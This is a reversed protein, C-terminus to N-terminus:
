PRTGAAKGARTTGGASMWVSILSRGQGVAEGLSAFVEDDPPRFAAPPPLASRLAVAMARLEGALARSAAPDPPPAGGDLRAALGTVADATRATHAVVAALAETRPRVPPEALMQDLVAHARGATANMARRRRAREATNGAEEASSLLLLYDAAADYAGAAATRLELDRRPPRLLYGFVLVVACGIATEQMRVPALGPLGTHTLRETLLLIATTLFCTQWAYNRIVGLSLAAGLVALVAADPWGRPLAAIVAAALLVGAATGLARLLARVFVSGLDPKLVFAVTLPIWYARELAPLRSFCAAIGICLGSRAAYAWSPSSGLTRRIRAADGRLSWADGPMGLHSTHPTTPRGPGTAAFAERVARDVAREAPGGAAPRHAPPRYPHNADVARAIERVLPAYASRGPAAAAELLPPCGNLAQIIRHVEGGPRPARPRHRVVEEYARHFLARARAVAAMTAERGEAELADAVAAYVGAVLRREPGSGHLPRGVLALIVVIMGGALLLLATVRAPEPSGIGSWIIVSVLTNMALVSTVPGIRSVAGAAVALLTLVVVLTWGHGALLSGAYCGAANGLPQPGMRVLRQRYPGGQDALIVPFAGFAVLTGLEGRGCLLGAAVPGGLGAAARAMAARDPSSTRSRVAHRLWGPVSHRAQVPAASPGHRM